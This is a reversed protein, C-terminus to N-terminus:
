SKEVYANIFKLILEGFGGLQEDHIDMNNVSLDNKRRLELLRCTNIVQDYTLKTERSISKLTDIEDKITDPHDQHRYNRPEQDFLTGM